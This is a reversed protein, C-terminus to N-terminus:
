GLRYLEPEAEHMRVWYELNSYPSNNVVRGESNKYWSEVGPHGWALNRSISQVEENYSDCAEQPIELRSADEKLMLGICQMIYHVQVETNYIISGGHVINTNPGYLCFLNPYDPVLMGKYAEPSDGWRSDLSEGSEGVVEMPWLFRNTNFGTAFIIVDFDHVEGDETEIGSENFRVIPSDVLSVDNRAMTGYWNNDIIVRKGFPPFDPVCKGMLEQRDGLQDSMYAILAERVGLNTENMSQRTDKWEPDAPVADWNRDMFGFIMRARHWEAYRPLCNLAWKIGDEVPRYYDRNPSIWHPSRQFVTLHEAKDATKPVLQVASCGTGIVAVRKGELEVDHEWRASHFARGKFRELGDFDPIVPRNLQGVASVVVNANITKEEGAQVYSVTWLSTSQDFSMGKVECNLEIKDRIGFEDTCREFYAYLEDRKSFYGSWNANRAFSFSYFHNPTDVGCDPYTNEYWTGGVADNKELVTYSVGAKKLKAATCIGSMGAGVVVVHFNEASGAQEFTSLWDLDRDVFNTEELLMASFSDDVPEATSFAMMTKLRHLDPVDPTPVESDRLEVALEFAAQRIEDAIEDSFNGSDDPFLEGEPTHIPEPMYRETMWRDDGAFETLVMLLTPLNVDLLAAKIEEDTVTIDMTNM